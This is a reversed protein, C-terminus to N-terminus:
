SILVIRLDKETELLLAMGPCHRGVLGVLVSAPSEGVNCYYFIRM